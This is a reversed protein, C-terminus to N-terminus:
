NIQNIIPNLLLCELELEAKEAATLVYLRLCFAQSYTIHLSGRVQKRKNFQLAKRQLESLGEQLFKETLPDTSEYQGAYKCLEIIAQAAKKDLSVKCM